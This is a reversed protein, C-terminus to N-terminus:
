RKVWTQAKRAKKKGAKKSEVMRPDRKLMKHERFVNSLLPIYSSIAKSIALQVAISQASIGGGHVNVKCDFECSTGSLAFPLTVRTRYPLDFFYENVPRGNVEIKGSGPWIWAYAKATKRAGYASARGMEDLDPEDDGLRKVKPMEVRKVIPFNTARRGLATNHMYDNGISGDM